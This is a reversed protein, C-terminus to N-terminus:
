KQDLYAIGFGTKGFGNGNYLMYVREKHKFVYPYEIMESDWGSPSIDIGSDKILGTPWAIGDKSHSYGIRYKEGSGSRFSFWMDYGTEHRLITPRSFAQFKEKEYPIALGNRQWNHGDKSYAHNITHIMEGNGAGLEILNFKKPSGLSEWFSITWIAIMESFLRSINPATTFDGTEGFPNSNMYYGKKRDYLCYNIFKDLPIKHDKKLIM